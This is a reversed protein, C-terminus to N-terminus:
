QHRGQYSVTKLTPYERATVRDFTGIVYQNFILYIIGEMALFPASRNQHERRQLRSNESMFTQIILSCALVM